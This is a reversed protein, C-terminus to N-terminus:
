TGKMLKAFKTDLYAKIAHFLEVESASVGSSQGSEPALAPDALMAAASQIESGLYPLPDVAEGNLHYEFHLHPGTSLGSNGSLAIIDGQKM